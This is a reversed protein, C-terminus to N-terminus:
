GNRLKVAKESAGNKFAIPTTAKSLDGGEVIVGENGEGELQLFTSSPTLVRAATILTQTTNIFRLVSEAAANGQVAFGNFAADNVHDFIVAPRLDPTSVEFRVNQLTVGRVNRAYLGYAPIPGLRFYEGFVQPVDRKAGEEATGGGGFVLHVNDFNINELISENVSNLVIASHGEGPRTGVTLTGESLQPPPSTTVTGHINSFSIKRVIVRTKDDPPPLRGGISISIPGTVDSLELNSFAINEFRSGPDGQFKIPCGYVEHLVCNSVSINEAFGGGFRFVSWRTSFYSNTVTIYKCSGFLACADDGCKVTCNSLRVQEASIFHFGDNNGNVRNHIYISDLCIRQSEIIRISHYACDLLSINRVSFNECKYVLVHYPRKNGGLGSPPPTGRVGSHFQAGQGDITGPGEISVNKANVAFLLAWNGDNLTTDGHLPIADVAHYQKGDGSGLLTGSAAIHLTVNSKLETTGITFTGAPVLVTGGGDSACADIASQLAATDIVSNNGKAGYSRINYVRAGLDDINAAPKAGEASLRSSELLGASIMAGTAPLALKGFWDRRTWQTTGVAGENKLLSRRKMRRLAQIFENISITFLGGV